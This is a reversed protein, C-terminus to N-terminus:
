YTEMADDEVHFTAERVMYASGAVGGAGKRAKLYRRLCPDSYTMSSSSLAPVRGGVAAPKSVDICASTILVKSGGSLRPAIVPRNTPKRASCQTCNEQQLGERSPAESASVNTGQM